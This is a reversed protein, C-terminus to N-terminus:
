LIGSNWVDTVRRLCLSRVNCWRTLCVWKWHLLSSYRTLFTHLTHPCFNLRSGEPKITWNIKILWGAARVLRHKQWRLQCHLKRCLRSGNRLLPLPGTKWRRARKRRTAASIVGHQSCTTPLRIVQESVAEFDGGKESAALFKWCACRGSVWPKALM